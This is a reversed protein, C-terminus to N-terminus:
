EIARPKAERPIYYLVMYGLALIIWEDVTKGYITVIAWLAIIAFSLVYMYILFTRNKKVVCLFKYAKISEYVVLCLTAFQLLLKAIGLAGLTELM